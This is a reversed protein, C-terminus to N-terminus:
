AWSWALANIISMGQTANPEGAAIVLGLDMDREERDIAFYHQGSCTLAACREAPDQDLFAAAEHAM